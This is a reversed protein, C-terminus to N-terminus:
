EMIKNIPRILDNCLNLMEKAIPLIVFKIIQRKPHTKFMNMATMCTRYMPSVFVTQFEIENIYKM